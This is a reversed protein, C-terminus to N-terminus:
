SFDREDVSADIAWLLGGVSLPWVTANLWPWPSGALFAVVLGAVLLPFLRTGYWHAPRVGSLFAGFYLIPLVALMWWSSWTMSWEFPSAHTGPTAAWLGLVLLVTAGCGLVCAAGWVLKFGISKRRSLPLHLLMGYTGRFSEGMAQWLGLATAFLGTIIVFITPIQDAVFPIEHTNPGYGYGRMGSIISPLISVRTVELIFVAYAALTPLLIWLSQRLEKVFLAKWM